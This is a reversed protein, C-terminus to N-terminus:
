KRAAAASGKTALADARENDVHGDHGRVWNWTINHKNALEDLRQWLDHNKRFGGGKVRYDKAKWGALWKTMGQQVYTSDTTVTVNCPRKLRELGEIVAQMEMRNNTTDAASGFFEKEEGRWRLILGWGGPGPNGSCAGDTIIEVANKTNDTM